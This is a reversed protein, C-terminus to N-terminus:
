LFIIKLHIM